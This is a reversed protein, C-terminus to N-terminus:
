PEGKSYVVDLAYVSVWGCVVAFGMGSDDIGGEVQSGFVALRTGKAVQYIAKPARISARSISIRLRRRSTLYRQWGSLESKSLGKMAAPRKERSGRSSRPSASMSTIPVPFDSMSFTSDSPDFSKPNCNALMSRSRPAFILLSSGTAMLRTAM